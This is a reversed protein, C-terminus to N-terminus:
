KKNKGYKGRKVILSVQRCKNEKEVYINSLEKIQNKVEEILADLEEVNKLKKLLAKRLILTRKEGFLVLNESKNLSMKLNDLQLKHLEKLIKNIEKDEEKKGKKLTKRKIELLKITNNLNEIKTKMSNEFNIM